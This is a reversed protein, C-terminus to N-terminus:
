RADGLLVVLRNAIAAWTRDTPVTAHKPSRSGDLLGAIAAVADDATRVLHLRDASRELGDIPTAVVERGAAWYEYMKIPDGGSESQGVAHPIWAVDFSGLYDPLRDYHRDGLVLVNPSAALARVTGRDLTQGLFVFRVGPMKRAVEEILATDLRPGMSGAYGVIPGAPLDLPRVPTREFQEPTVGNPIVEVPQFWRELVDRSRPASAVVASATPLMDRYAAEALPAQRRLQPHLIWNDLSDYVFASPQLQRIAPWATPTWALVAPHGAGLRGAGWSVMDLVAPRAFIEFWWVRPTRVPSFLDPVGIDLVTTRDGVQTLSAQFRGSRVRAVIRGRARGQTRRIVREALSVPRDVVLLSEVAPHNGLLELLHGDRWRMGEADGKRWDHYPFAVIKM